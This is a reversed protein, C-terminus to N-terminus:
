EQDLGCRKEHEVKGRLRKMATDRWNLLKTLKPAFREITERVCDIRACEKCIDPQHICGAVIAECTNCYRKKCIVCTTLLTEGVPRECIDCGEVTKSPIKVRM